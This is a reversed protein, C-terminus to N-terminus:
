NVTPQYVITMFVLPKIQADNVNRMNLKSIVTM